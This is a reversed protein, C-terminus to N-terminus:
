GALHELTRVIEQRREQSAADPLLHAQMSEVFAPDNLLLRFQEALYATLEPDSARVERVLEPRGDVVALIDEIDRSMFYDGLGRNRFAEIKTALFYPANIVRLLYDDITRREANKLAPAYWHNGFGLIDANTPMVDLILEDCTWRCIIKDEQRERFGLLRM